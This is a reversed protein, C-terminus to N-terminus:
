EGFEDKLKEYLARREQLSKTEKELKKEIKRKRLNFEENTELRNYYLRVCQYDYDSEWSFEFDKCGKEKLAKVEVRLNEIVTELDGSFVDETVIIHDNVYIKEM